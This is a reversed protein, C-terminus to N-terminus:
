RGFGEALLEDIRDSQADDNSYRGFWALPDEDADGAPEGGDSLALYEQVARAALEEPALGAVAARRELRAAAEDDLDVNFSTM